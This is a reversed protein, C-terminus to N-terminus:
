VPDNSREYDGVFDGHWFTIGSNFINKIKSIDNFPIDGVLKCNQTKVYNWSKRGTLNPVKVEHVAYGFMTFYDDIVKAYQATISMPIFFFDKLGAAISVTSGTSGHAQPPLSSTTALKGVTSAIGAAGGAIMLPNVTAVGAALSFASGITTIATSAGNQALWAKFSDTTYACQPFGDLVLKENVNVTDGKYNKPSIIVQPNPSMDGTIRFGCNSDSFFEYRFNAANGSYNTCYLFNYPYTFLKNNKPVYGNISSYAKGKPVLDYYKAAGNKETIFQTPMMFISVISDSKNQSTVTEIFANAWAVNPAVQYSLGSYVGGYMGGVAPNGNEDVTSAIVISLQSLFDTGSKVGNEVYDGLELNEVIINAGISDNNVHEREVFCPKLTYDYKWTQMVDIEYSIDCAEENVFEINTVFAYFWKSTTNRYKNRFMLYNVNYLSDAPKPVRIKNQLRIPSFAPLDFSKKSLFYNTQDELGDFTLTDTYSSDLPVDHLLYLSSQLTDPVPIIM